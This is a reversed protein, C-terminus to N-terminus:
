RKLIVRDTYFQGDPLQVRVTYIGMPLHGLTLEALGVGELREEQMLRGTMDYIAVIVLGDNTSTAPWGLSLRGLTPNPYIKLGKVQPHATTVVPEQPPVANSSPTASIPPPYFHIGKTVGLLGKAYGNYPNTGESYGSLVISDQVSLQYVTDSQLRSLNIMMMNKFDAEESPLVNILNTSKQWDEQLFALSVLSRNSAMTSDQLLLYEAAALDDSSVALHVLHSLARDKSNTAQQIDLELTKRASVPNFQSASVLQVFVGNPVSGDAAALIGETLAANDLMLNGKQNPTLGTSTLVALLVEDSLYPSASQLLPIAGVPDNQLAALLGARDGGDIQGKLLRLQDYQEELCLENDCDQLEQLTVCDPEQSGGFIEIQFFNFLEECDQPTATNLPCDPFLRSDTQDNPVFYLFQETLGTRAFIDVSNSNKGFLNFAPQTPIGQDAIHGTVLPQGPLEYKAVDVDIDNIVSGIDNTFTNNLFTYRSNQGAARIATFNLLYQNCISGVLGDSTNEYYEATSHSGFFNNASYVNNSYGSLSLGYTCNRIDNYQVTLNSAGHTNIAHSCNRFINEMDPAPSGIVTEHLAPMTNTIYIGSGSINRFECSNKVSGSADYFELGLLSMGEFRCNDFVIGHTGWMTVGAKMESVNQSSFFNCDRFYSINDYKYQMFEASRKCGDFTTEEAQVIGGYYSRTWWDFDDKKTSIANRANSIYANNKLLLIGPDDPQPNNINVQDHRRNSNGQVIIGGWYDTDADCDPLEDRHFSITGGDVTLKAGREVLIYGERPMYIEGCIALDAGARLVINNHIHSNFGWTEEQDVIRPVDKSVAPPEECLVYKRMSSRHLSHHIEGIQLSNFYNHISVSGSCPIGFMINSECCNPSDHGLGFSHGIEHALVRGIFFVDQDVDWDPNYLENYRYSFYENNMSIRQKKQYDAYDPPESCDVGSASFSPDTMAILTQTYPSFENGFFINLGERVEEQDLRNFVHDRYDPFWSNPCYYTSNSANELNWAFADEISYVVIDFRIKPDPVYDVIGEYCIPDNPDVLNSVRRNLEFKVDEIFQVHAMDQNPGELRFNGIDQPASPFYGEPVTWFIFNVKVTLPQLDPNTVQYATNQEWPSSSVCDGSSPDSSTYDMVIDPTGCSFPHINQATVEAQISYLLCFM